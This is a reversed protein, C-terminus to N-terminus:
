KKLKLEVPEIQAEIATTQETLDPLSALHDQYAKETITGNKMLRSVVRKDFVDADTSKVSM